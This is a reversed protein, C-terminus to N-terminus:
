MFLRRFWGSELRKKCKKYQAGYRGARAKVQGAVSILWKKKKYTGRKYGGWGEHYNLYQARADWKSVKNLKHTKYIFWGMFDIADAFDDRDAWSNGTERVYDKWTGTKAQSYGFASSKRGWPIVGLVYKRPPRADRVFKSEQYMMAMPVQLPAGWKKQARKAAKHWHRKEEFIECINDLEKPPKGACGSVIGLLLSTLLVLTFKKGCYRHILRPIYISYIDLVAIFMAKM